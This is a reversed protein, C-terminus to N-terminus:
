DVTEVAPWMTEVAPWMAEVTVWETTDADGGRLEVGDTLLVTPPTSEAPNAELLVGDVPTVLAGVGVSFDVTELGSGYSPRRRRDRRAASGGDPRRDGQAPEADAAISYQSRDPRPAAQYRAGNPDTLDV